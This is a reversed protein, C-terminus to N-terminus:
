PKAKRPALDARLRDAMWPPLFRAIVDEAYAIEGAKHLMVCLKRLCQTRMKRDNAWSFEPDTAITCLDKLQAALAKASVGNQKAITALFIANTMTVPQIARIDAKCRAIFGPLQAPDDGLMGSGDGAKVSLRAKIAAIDPEGTAMERLLGRLPYLQNLASGCPHGAYPVGVLEM